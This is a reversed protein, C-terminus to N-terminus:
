IGDLDGWCIGSHIRLFWVDTLDNTTGTKGGTPVGSVKAKTGTGSKVVTQLMDNMIWATQETIISRSDPQYDYVVQGQSDIIKIIFHPKNFIGSNGFTSYAGAMQLPTAGRTLGGLALPALNLDNSDGSEVLDLGFLKGNEYGARVGVKDMLQVAYTNISYKVATRM